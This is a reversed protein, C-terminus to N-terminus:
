AAISPSPLVRDCRAKNEGVSLRAPKNDNFALSLFSFFFFLCFPTNVKSWAISKTMCRRHACYYGDGFPRENASWSVIPSAPPARREKKIREKKRKKQPEHKQVRARREQEGKRKMERRTRTRWQRSRKEEEKTRERRRQEKLRLWGIQDVRRASM